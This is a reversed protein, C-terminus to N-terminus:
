RELLFFGNITHKKNSNDKYSVVYYYTGDNCPIGGKTKGNWGGNFGSWRFLELGWRDYVLCEVDGVDTGSISFLDNIGDGNPTFINPVVIELVTIKQTTSDSCGFSDTVKLSVNYLGKNDYYSSTPNNPTNIINGNGFNWNYNSITGYKSYSTSLFIENCPVLSTTENVTFSAKVTDIHINYNLTDFCYNKIRLTYIGEQSISAHTGSGVITTSPAPGTWYYSYGNNTTSLTTSQGSCVMSDGTIILPVLPTNKNLMVLLGSNFYTDTALDQKGDSNFDANILSESASPIPFKIPPCFRGNGIGLLIALSDYSSGKTLALDLHADGNFDATVISAPSKVASFNMAPLFTGTGNGLLVSVDNDSYNGTAIDMNGDENFDGNTMSLPYWGVSFHHPSGFGGSGDGSFIIVQSPGDLAIALDPMSDNNFDSSTLVISGGGSPLYAATDLNGLGDGLLVATTGGTWPSYNATAVDTKGDLNFDACTIASPSGTVHFNNPPGFGGAGNGLAISVSNSDGNATALDAKGDSNFDASQISSAAFGVSAYLPASFGGAGNGLYILVNNIGIDHVIAIDSNGDSNFDATIIERPSGGAPLNTTFSFAVQGSLKFCAILLSFM